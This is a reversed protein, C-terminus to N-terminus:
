LRNSIGEIMVDTLRLRPEGFEERSEGTSARVCKCGEKVAELAVAQAEAVGRSCSVDDDESSLRSISM